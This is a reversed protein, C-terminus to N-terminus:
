LFRRRGPLLGRWGLVRWGLLIGIFHQLWSWWVGNQGSHPFCSRCPCGSSLRSWCTREDMLPCDDAMSDVFSCPCLDSSYISCRVLTRALHSAHSCARTVTISCFWYDLYSWHTRFCQVSFEALPVNRGGGTVCPPWRPGTWRCDAHMQLGQADASLAYNCDTHM